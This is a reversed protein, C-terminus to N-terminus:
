KIHGIHSRLIPECVDAERSTVEMRRYTDLCTLMCLQPQTRAVSSVLTFVFSLFVM